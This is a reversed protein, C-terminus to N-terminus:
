GGGNIKVDPSINTLGVASQYTSWYDQVADRAGMQDTYVGIANKYTTYEINPNYLPSEPKTAALVQEPSLLVGNNFYQPPLNPATSVLMGQQAIRWQADLKGNDVAPTPVEIYAGDKPLTDKTPESGLISNELKDLVLGQGPIKDPIQGVVVDLASKKLDFAMKARDLQEGGYAAAYQDAGGNILGHMQAAQVMDNYAPGEIGQHPHAALAAGYSNEYDIMNQYAAGNFTKAADPDSDLVAFLGRTTPAEVDGNDLMQFGPMGAGDDIMARQYPALAEAYGRVLEPNVQGLTLDAERSLGGPAIEPNELHLLPNQNTGLYDALVHAAQGTQPNGVDQGLYGVMHRVSAGDDAWQHTTMNAVFDKDTIIKDSVATHDRGASDLIGTITEDGEAALPDGKLINGAQNLMGKDLENGQMLNSNAHGVIDSLKRLDQAGQAEAWPEHITIDGHGTPPPPKTPDLQANLAGQVSKPLSYVGGKELNTWPTYDMQSPDKQITADPDSMVALANGVMDGHMGLKGQLDKLQDLSIDKMQASMEGVVAAQEPNLTGGPQLQDPTISNLVRNVQTAAADDGTLAKGVTDKAVQDTMVGDGNLEKNIDDASELGVAGRIAAALEEDAANADALLATLCRQLESAAFILQKEEDETADAPIDVHVAGTATDITMHHAAAYDQYGQWEQRIHTVKTEAAWAARSAAEAAKADVKLSDHIATMGRDAAGATDGEWQVQGIATRMAEGADVCGKARADAAASVAHIAAPDWRDIDALTLDSM